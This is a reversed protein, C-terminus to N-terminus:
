EWRNSGAEKAKRCLTFALTEEPIGWGKLLLHSQQPMWGWPCLLELAKLSELTFLAVITLSRAHM